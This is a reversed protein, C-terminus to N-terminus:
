DGNRREKDEACEICDHHGLQRRRQPIENDECEPCLRPGPNAPDPVQGRARRLAAARQAEAQDTARDAEDAM